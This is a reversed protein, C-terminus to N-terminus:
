QRNIKYIIPDFTESAVMVKDGINLGLIESAQAVIEVVNSQILVTVIYLTEQAEIKLVDGTFRFKGSINKNIFIQSPNGQNIIKGEKLILVWDSLKIIEAIDHSILITTLNFEKHIKLLYDQLKFRIKSDLASLPEDLLLIQPQQVLARALAVRQQQGGSLNIPTKNQLDGLEMLDIIDTIHTLNKKNKSAFTLNKKVTMNPFLAYDQFVFGVNRKQPPLNIKRNKDFWVTNDVQIMGQDPKLLGSIMRLTSTKGAGSEGYITLLQGKPITYSLELVMEGLTGDLKKNIDLKIM